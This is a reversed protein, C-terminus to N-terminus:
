LPQRPRPEPLDATLPVAGSFAAGSMTGEGRTPSPLVPGEAVADPSPNRGFGRVWEQRPVAEYGEGVLPSPVIAVGRTRSHGPFEKTGRRNVITGTYTVYRM